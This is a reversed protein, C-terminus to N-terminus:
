KERSARGHQKRTEAAIRADRARTRGLELAERVDLEIAGTDHEPSALDAVALDKGILYLATLYIGISVSPEGAEMNMLTPVTVGMRQAWSALSERRRLRAVALDSGLKALADLSAPPLRAVAPSRSMYYVIDFVANTYLYVINNHLLIERSGM